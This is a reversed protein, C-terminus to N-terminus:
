LGLAPPAWVSVPLGAARAVPLAAVTFTQPSSTGSCATAVVRVGGVNLALPFDDPKTTWKPGSPTSVVLSTAGAAAPASVTSSDTDARMVHENTDGTTAATRAVAWVRYPSCNATVNWTYPTITQQYGEVALSLTEDPATPAVARVNLVDIRDGLVLDTWAAAHQPTAVLDLALSPWRYGEVTGQHVFWGAYYPLVEDVDTPVDLSDDYVGVVRTGLEGDTDEYTASSGDPRSVTVKNRRSQDDHVPVFPVGVEGAAADLVLDAARSERRRKTVYAIGPGAGDFLIGRDVAETDRLLALLGGPLQPGMQDTVGTVTEIAGFITLDLGNESCLRALRGTGTVQEGTYAVLQDSFAFAGPGTDFLAVHGVTVEDNGGDTNIQVRVAKGMTCGNLDAGFGSSFASGEQLWSGEWHVTDADTQVLSLGLQGRQGDIGFGVTQDLLLGASGWARFNLNGPTSYRVEWLSATGTTVLGLLVTQDTSGDAPFDVLCQAYLEGTDTYSRVPGYLEAGKLTPLPLSCNFVDSAAFDPFVVPVGVSGGPHLRENFTMPEGGVGSAIQTAAKGDECPWYALVHDATSLVRRMTSQVPSDGQALRRLVGSAQVEVTAAGGTTEWGPSWGDAYGQFLVRAGFGDGLDVSVRVPTGQRVHPWHTSRGGLSYDGSSNDLTFTCSAPQSASAEDGRGLSTSVGPDMRVDTTIDSWTWGASDATLDAGWAVEVLLRANPGLKDPLLPVGAM